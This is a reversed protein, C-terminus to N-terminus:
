KETTIVSMVPVKKYVRFSEIANDTLYRVVCVGKELKCLQIIVAFTRAGIMADAQKTAMIISRPKPRIASCLVADSKM